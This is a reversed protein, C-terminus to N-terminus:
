REGKEVIRRNLEENLMEDLTKDMPVLSLIKTRDATLVVQVNCEIERGSEGVVYYVAGTQVREEGNEKITRYDYLGFWRFTEGDKLTPEVYNKVATFVEKDRDHFTCSVTAAVVVAGVIAFLFKMHKM